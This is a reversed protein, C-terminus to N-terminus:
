SFCGFFISSVHWDPVPNCLYGNFDSFEGRSAMLYITGVCAITSFIFLGFFHWFEIKKQLVKDKPKTHPAIFLILIVFILSAGWTMLSTFWPGLIIRERTYPMDFELSTATMRWVPGTYESIYDGYQWQLTSPSVTTSAM